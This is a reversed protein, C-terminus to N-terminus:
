IGLLTLIDHYQLYISALKTEKPFDVDLNVHFFYLFQTVGRFRYVVSYYKKYFFLAHLKRKNSEKFRTIELSPNSVGCIGKSTPNQTFNELLLCTIKKRRCGILVFGLIQLGSGMNVYGNCANRPQCPTSLMIQMSFGVETWHSGPLGIM